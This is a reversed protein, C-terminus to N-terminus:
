FKPALKHYEASQYGVGETNVALDKEVLQKLLKKISGESLDNGNRDTVKGHLTSGYFYCDEPNKPNQICAQTELANLVLQQKYPIGEKAKFDINTLELFGSTLELGEGILDVEKFVFNKESMGQGDKNLTQQFSVFMQDNKDTRQVKFEYDLSAGIVSSGRARTGEHGSHHVICVNCGYTSILGDLQHIFNGVDEASNENGGGFNRQFTDVVIMGIDGEISKVAEIEQVLREFDDKDGIRVARDSLYLPADKLSYMGQQIASLRRKCGRLGEGVIYLVPKKFAKNGYFDKGTAIACSMAIAVFSKGSKPAGYIQMLSEEEVVDKILWKPNTVESLVEDARRFTLSGKEKKEKITEIYKLLSDHTFDGREAADWLDDKDNFTEPPQIVKTKCGNKKLEGAIEYACKIGAEDNDAWIYVERGYIASWDTKNWGTAGGHWTCVDYNWIREAGRMAKEGENVIVPKEPCNNTIYLPLLGEPRKMLWSGNADLSFPAYKMPLGSHRIVIFNDAYKVKVEAERYLNVMQDRSFSRGGGTRAIPTVSNSITSPLPREYGFQKLTEAVDKGHQELLWTVGGGQGLEFDYFTGAELNLTLSGKNNWRWENSKQVKPEGLIQRAVDPAIKQWDHDQM